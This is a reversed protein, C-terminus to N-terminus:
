LPIVEKKLWSFGWSLEVVTNVLIKVHRQPHWPSGKYSLQFLIQRCHLHYPNSEQTPFTRQLLFHCGSWYEQGSFGMSVPVKCAMTCATVLTLCSKSVLGSPISSGFAPSNAELVFYNEPFVDEQPFEVALPLNWTLPSFGFIAISGTM